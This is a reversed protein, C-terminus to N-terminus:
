RSVQRIPGEICLLSGDEHECMGCLGIACGMYAEWSLQSLRRGGFCPASAKKKFIIENKGRFWVKDGVKLDHMANSYRGVAAITLTLPM